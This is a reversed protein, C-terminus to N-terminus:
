LVTPSPTESFAILESARNGRVLGRSSRPAYAALRCNGATQRCCRQLSLEARPVLHFPRPLSGLNRRRPWFGIEVFKKFLFRLRSFRLLRRFSWIGVDLSWPFELRWLRGQAFTSRAGIQFYWVALSCLCSDPAPDRLLKQFQANPTPRQANSTTEELWSARSRCM